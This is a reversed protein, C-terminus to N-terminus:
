DRKIIIGMALGRGLALRSDKIKVVVPGRTSNIVQIKEGISFGMESLRRVIGKGGLINVIKGEEGPSLMSLPIGLVEINDNVDHIHEDVEEIKKKLEGLDNLEKMEHIDDHIHNLDSKLNDLKKWRGIRSRGSALM